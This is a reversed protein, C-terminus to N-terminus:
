LADTAEGAELDTVEPPAAGNPPTGAADVPAAPTEATGHGHDESTAAETASMGTPGTAIAVEAPAGAVPEVARDAVDGPPAPSLPDVYQAPIAAVQEPLLGYQEKALVHVCTWGLHQTVDKLLRAEQELLQDRSPPNAHEKTHAGCAMSALPRGTRTDILQTQVNYGMWYNDWNSPFYIFQWGASRVDFVFDAEPHLAALDKPKKAKSAVADPELVIAGYRDALAQALQRRVLIAPDEVGNEDVINNGASVMAATGLLGLTAKGATFAIFSPREHVTLAITKGQLTAADLESLAIPKEKASATAACLLLGAGWAAKIM